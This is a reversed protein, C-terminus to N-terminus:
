ANRCDIKGTVANYILAKKYEELKQIIKNSRKISEDIALCKSDLYDIINQQESLPIVPFVLNCLNYSYLADITTSNNTLEIQKIFFDSNNFMYKLLRPNIVNSNIRFRIICPHLIGSPANNPVIAIHGLTGRTTILIDNPYVKFGSLSNAKEKSVFTDNTEFNEDLVTRQNYVWEGSSVYSSSKLQSGFPGVKVANGNSNDYAYKLRMISWNQPIEGIWEVGSDKMESNPNLGKTVAQTITSQKYEMLKDVIDKQKQIAQDIAECKSNLYNVIQNQESIPPVCIKFERTDKASLNTACSGNMWYDIQKKILNSNISYNLYYPNIKDNPRIVVLSSAITGETLDTNISCIGLSGRLCFILDNIRLKAGRLSNYKEATIYKSNEVIELKLNHLNESTIFNVGSDKIDNGSPYQNSRDGNILDSVYKIDMLNWNLPIQHICDLNTLKMERSM